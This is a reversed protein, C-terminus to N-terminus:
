TSFSAVRHSWTRFNEFEIHTLSIQWVEELKTDSFPMKLHLMAHMYEFQLFYFNIAITTKEFKEKQSNESDSVQLLQSKWSFNIHNRRLVVTWRSFVDDKHVEDDDDHFIMMKRFILRIFCVWVGVSYSSPHSHACQQEDIDPMNKMRQKVNRKSEREAM